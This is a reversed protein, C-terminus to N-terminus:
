KERDKGWVRDLFQDRGSNFRYLKYRFPSKQYYDQHYAEAPYFASAPSIETVLPKQFRGSKELDKKSEQALRKQEENHYFIASRYQSGVDVFQRDPTTPDINRWFVELLEPYTIQAPDYFFQIAEAHGTKGASVEEYTPKDKHGGTYGSIVEGVGKLKEFPPEMCWFCGGAFTAKELAVGGKSKLPEDALSMSNFAFSVTLIFLIKTGVGTGVYM